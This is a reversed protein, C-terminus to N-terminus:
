RVVDGKWKSFRVLKKVGNPWRLPRVFEDARVGRVEDETEIGIVVGTTGDTSPVVSLKSTEGGEYELVVVAGAVQEGEDQPTVKTGANEIENARFSLVIGCGEMREEELVNSADFWEEGTSGTAVSAVEADVIGKGEGKPPAPPPVDDDVGEVEEDRLTFAFESLSVREDKPPVPPPVDTDANEILQISLKSITRSLRERWDAPLPVLESRSFRMRRNWIPTGIEEYDVEWKLATGIEVLRKAEIEPAVGDAVGGKGEVEPATGTGGDGDTDDSNAIIALESFHVKKLGGRSRRAVGLNSGIAVAPGGKEGLEPVSVSKVGGEGCGRRDESDVTDVSTRPWAGPIVGTDKRKRTVAGFDRVTVGERGRLFSALTSPLRRSLLTRVLRIATTAALASSAQLYSLQYSELM